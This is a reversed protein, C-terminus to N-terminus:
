SSMSRLAPIVDHAFETVSRYRAAPDKAAARRLVAELRRLERGEGDLTLSDRMIAMLLETHTRGKFPRTGVIAEAVMVGLAFIDGREDVDDGSLQEPAM